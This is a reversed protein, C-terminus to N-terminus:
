LEDKEDKDDAPEPAESADNKDASEVAKKKLEYPIVAHEKIFKTLAKLSREGEFDIIDADERAPVFILTPYGEVEIDPHENATGDMKAVVVSEIDKFRAALKKYAPELAQCHGCWPAYIELLVDKTPDFVIDEVTHGVVVKVPGDMDDEPIDESKLDAKVSGDMIGRAFAEIDEETLTGNYPFKRQGPEMEFGILVPLAKDELEFFQMVPEAEGGESDVTVFVFSHESRMKKAVAHFAKFPAADFSLAAAPAVFILHNDIGSGFIVETTGSSFPVVTPIVEYRVFEEIDANEMTGSYPLATRVGEPQFTSVVSFSNLPAAAAQAVEAVSTQYFVDSMDERAVAVFEALATDNEPTDAAFYGVVIAPSAAEAAKLEDLTTIINTPPGTMKTVWRVIADATRGGSYDVEGDASMWKLTPFGDVGFREALSSEATADVKALVVNPHTEALRLAAEAYEPALTQCHGCWPAYFEVLTYQSEKTVNDFNDNTLVAVKEENITAAEGDEAPPDDQSFAMPLCLGLLALGLLLMKMWPAM